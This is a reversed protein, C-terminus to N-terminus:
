PRTEPQKPGSGRLAPQDKIDKVEGSSDLESKHADKVEQMLLGLQEFIYQQYEAVSVINVSRESSRARHPGESGPYNDEV